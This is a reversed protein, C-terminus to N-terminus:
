VGRRSPTHPLLARAASNEASLDAARLPDLGAIDSKFRVGSVGLPLEGRIAPVAAIDVLLLSSRALHEDFRQRMATQAGEGLSDAIVTHLKVIQETDSELRAEIREVLERMSTGGGAQELFMSAVIAIVSPPPACQEFSFGHTRARMSSTKVELRLDSLVFDYRDDPAAHWADLAAHPDSSWEIMLLEGFLGRATKRAPQSLRAFLAVLRHIVEVIQAPTPHDSPSALFQQAVKLFYTQTETDSALCQVVTLQRSAEEGGQRIRCRVNSIVGINALEVPPGPQPGESTSFLLAPRGQQSRGLFHEPCGPLTLVTYAVGSGSGELASPISNFIEIFSGDSM